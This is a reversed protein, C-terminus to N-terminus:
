CRATRRPRPTDGGRLVVAHIVAHRLERYVAVARKPSSAALLLDTPQRALRLRASQGTQRGFSCRGHAGRSRTYEVRRSRTDFWSVHLGGVPDQALGSAVNTFGRGVRIGKGVRTAGVKRLLLPSDGRKIQTIINRRALAFVGRPGAALMQGTEDARVKGARAWPTWGASPDAGAALRALGWRGYKFGAIVGGGALSVISQGTVIDEGPTLDRTVLAPPGTLPLRSFQAAGPDGGILDVALGDATLAVDEFRAQGSGIVTAPGWTGGGDLSTSSWVSLADADISSRELDFVSAVLVLAGDAPRRLLELRQVESRPGSSFAPVAGLPSCAKAGVPLSCVAALNRPEGSPHYAVFATGAGDTVVSPLDGRGVTLPAAGAVAPLVALAAAAASLLLRIRM